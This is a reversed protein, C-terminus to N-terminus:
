KKKEQQFRELDNSYLHFLNQATKTSEDKELVYWLIVVRKDTLYWIVTEPDVCKWIFLQEQYIRVAWEEGFLVTINWPAKNALSKLKTDARICIVSSIIECISFQLNSNSLYSPSPIRYHRYLCKEIGNMKPFSMIPIVRFRCYNM